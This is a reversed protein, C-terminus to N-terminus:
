HCSPDDQFDGSAMMQGLFHGCSVIKQSFPDNHLESPSLAYKAANLSKRAELLKSSWEQVAEFEKRLLELGKRDAGTSVESSAIGLASQAQAKYNSVWHDTVPYGNQVANALASAWERMLSIEEIAAKAFERSLRTSAAPEAEAAAATSGTTATCSITLVIQKEEYAISGRGIEVLRTLDIYTKDGVKLVVADGSHNNIVLTRFEEGMQASYAVASLAVIVVILSKLNRNMQFEM